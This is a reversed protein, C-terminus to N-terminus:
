TREYLDVGLLMLPISLYTMVSPAFLVHGALFAIGLSLGLIALLFINEIHLRTFSPLLQKMLGIMPLAVLMSGIIGFSFFLDFFDMEVLKPEKQYDGAYGLGFLKRLIDAHLYNTKVDAFFVDRSSLVKKLIIAYKSSYEKGEDTEMEPNNLQQENGTITNSGMPSYPILCVFLLLILFLITTHKDKWIQLKARWLSYIIHIAILILGGLYATKTGIMPLMSLILIYAIWNLLRKHQLLNIIMITFLILTIVSLENASFFWGSHGSSDYRYSDMSTNTIIAIWYTIGVIYSVITTARYLTNKSLWNYQNIYIITFLIIIFYSAKLYFNLEAFWIFNDKLMANLLFSTVLGLYSAILLMFLQKHQRYFIIFMSIFLSTMLLTRIFAGVSIPFTSTLSTLLDIVPQLIIFIFLLTNIKKTDLRM